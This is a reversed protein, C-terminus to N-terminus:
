GEPAGAEPTGFRCRWQVSSAAGTLATELGSGAKSLERRGQAPQLYSGFGFGFQERAILPFTKEERDRKTTHIVEQRAPLNAGAEELACRAAHAVVLSGAHLLQGAAHFVELTLLHDATEPQVFGSAHQMHLFAGIPM